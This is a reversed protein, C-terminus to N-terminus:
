DCIVAYISDTIQLLRELEETLISFLVFIFELFIQSCTLGLNEFLGVEAMFMFYDIYHTPQWVVISELNLLKIFSQRFNLFSSRKIESRTLTQHKM